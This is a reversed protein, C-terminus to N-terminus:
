SNRSTRKYGHRHNEKQRDPQFASRWTLFLDLHSKLHLSKSPLASVLLEPSPSVVSSPLARGSSHLFSKGFNRTSTLGTFALSRSSTSIAEPFLQRDTELDSTPYEWTLRCSFAEIVEPFLQRSSCSWFFRSSLAGGLELQVLFGTCPADEFGSNWFMAYVFWWYM